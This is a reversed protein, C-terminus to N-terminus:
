ETRQTIGNRPQHNDRLTQLIRDVESRLGEKENGVRARIQQQLQEAQILRDLDRRELQGTNRWRQEAGIVQQLAELQWKRLQVLAEQIQKQAKNLDAELAAQGIIRLEVEHSRGPKKDVAVDDFDDAAVQLTVRDGEKLNSGDSHKILSLPLRRSIELRQPRL